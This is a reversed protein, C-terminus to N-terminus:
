DAKVAYKGSGTLAVSLATLMFIVQLEIAWGGFENLSFIDPVHALIIVFLMNGAILLGGIRAYIGLLLMLPAVFEGIYVGYSIFAPLSYEALLYQIYGLSSPDIVKALGHFLLTLGVALRLSFIGLDTRDLYNNISKIM